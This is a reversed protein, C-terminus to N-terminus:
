ERRPLPGPTAPYPVFGRGKLHLERGESVVCVDRDTIIVPEEPQQEPESESV